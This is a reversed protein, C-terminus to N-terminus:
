ISFLVELKKPLIFLGINKTPIPEIINKNMNPKEKPALSFCHEPHQAHVDADSAHQANQQLFSSQGHIPPPPHELLSPSTNPHQQM